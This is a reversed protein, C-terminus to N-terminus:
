SREIHERSVGGLSWLIGGHGVALLMGVLLGVLLRGPARWHAGPHLKM